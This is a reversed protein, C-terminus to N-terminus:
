QASALLRDLREAADKQMNPMVHSYIDMTVAITAHGLREQVVKPHEGGALLLSACSHRLDHFRIRPLGARDLLPWFSRRMINQKQYPRGVRNAFVLDLDEWSQAQLRDQAQRIRHRRLADVAM